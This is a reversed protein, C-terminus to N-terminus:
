AEEEENKLYDGVSYGNYERRLHLTVGDPEKSRSIVQVRLHKRELLRLYEGCQMETEFHQIKEVCASGIRKM